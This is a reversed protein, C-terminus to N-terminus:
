RYYVSIADYKYKRLDKSTGDGYFLALGHRQDAEYYGICVRRGSKCEVTMGDRKGHRYKCEFSCIGDSKLGYGLLNLDKDFEGVIETESDYDYKLGFLRCFDLDVVGKFVVHKGSVLYGYGITEGKKFIHKDHKLTMFEGIFSFKKTSFPNTKTSFIHSDTVKARSSSLDTVSQSGAHRHTNKSSTTFDPKSVSYTSNETFHIEAPGRIDFRANGENDFEQHVNFILVEKKLTGTQKEFKDVMAFVMSGRKWEGKIVQNNYHMIGYGHWIGKTFQGKYVLGKSKFVGIGHIENCKWTGQYEEGSSYVMKGYGEMQNNKIMGQYVSGDEFIIVGVKHLFLENRKLKFKGRVEVPSENFAIVKQVDQYRSVTDLEAQTITEMKLKVGKPLKIRGVFYKKTWFGILKMGDTKSMLGFGTMKSNKIMGHYMNGVNSHIKFVGNMKQSDSFIEGNFSEVGKSAHYVKGNLIFRKFMQEYNLSKAMLNLRRFSFKYSANNKVIFNGKYIKPLDYLVGRLPFGKEVLGSFFLGGNKYFIKGKGNPCGNQVFGSYVKEGDLYFVGRFHPLGGQFFGEYVINKSVSSFRGKFIHKNSITSYDQYNTYFNGEIM